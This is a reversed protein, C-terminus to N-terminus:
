YDQKGYPLKRKNTAQALPVEISFQQQIQRIEYNDNVSRSLDKILRSITRQQEDNINRRRRKLAVVNVNDEDVYDFPVTNVSSSNM